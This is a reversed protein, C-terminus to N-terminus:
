SWSTPQFRRMLTIKSRLFCPTLSRAGSGMMSPRRPMVKLTFGYLRHESRLCYGVRFEVMFTEIYLKHRGILEQSLEDIYAKM